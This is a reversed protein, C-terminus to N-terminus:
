YATYFKHLQFAFLNLENQVESGIFSITVPNTLM